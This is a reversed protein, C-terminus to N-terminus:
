PHEPYEIILEHLASIAKETYINNILITIKIESIEIMKIPINTSKLKLMISHLVKCDSKIGYGVVTVTAIDSHINFSKIKQVDKLKNLLLELNNKDSISSLFSYNGEPLQTSQMFEIQIDHESIIICLESIDIDAGSVEVNLLNKNSTIGTIFNQETTKIEKIISTGSNSSFSSLVRLNINYRMAIEVSHPHLVKAGSSAFELMQRYSVTALMRAHCVIKPDASFVGEVDTYIDCRDAKLVAAAHVATIDSGGRGLTTIRNGPSVGQFGAIIPIVNFELCEKICAVDFHQVSAQSANDNTQLPLQWAAFSRAKINKEQLALALLAASVIEGSSLAADYEQLKSSDTLTSVENCLKILQNTVGAMASVVIVLQSKQALEKEIVSVITKIKTTDAISTGGFKQIILRM